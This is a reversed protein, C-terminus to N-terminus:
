GTGCLYVSASLVHLLAAFSLAFFAFYLASIVRALKTFLFKLSNLLKM